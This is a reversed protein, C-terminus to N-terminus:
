KAALLFLANGILSITLLLYTAQSGIGKGKRESGFGLCATVRVEHKKGFQKNSFTIEGKKDLGGERGEVGWVDAM